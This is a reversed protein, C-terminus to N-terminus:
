PIKITIEEEITEIDAPKELAKEIFKVYKEVESKASAKDPFSVNPRRNYYENKYMPHNYLKIWYTIFPLLLLSKKIEIFYSEIQSDGRVLRKIRFNLKM